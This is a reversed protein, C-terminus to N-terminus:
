NPNEEELKKEEEEIAKLEKAIYNAIVQVNDLRTFDTMLRIRLVDKAKDDAEIVGVPIGPPFVASYGSTVITDGIEFFAHRPLEELVAHQADDGDWVLSGFGENNKLKCSLRFHPNLLSIVRSSHEGVVNVIGIVGNKDIVGMEPKVGDASGKNITIYNHPKIISNKIVTAPIFSYPNLIDPHVSDRMLRAKLESVEQQLSIVQGLLEGNRRNLSENNDRLDVFSSINGFCNYVSSSVANASTLYVSQHIPNSNVLLLLSVIIYIAFVFWKSNRLFFNILERM